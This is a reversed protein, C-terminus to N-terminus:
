RVLTATDTAHHQSAELPTMPIRPGSTTWWKLGCRECHEWGDHPTTNTCGTLAGAPNRDQCPRM